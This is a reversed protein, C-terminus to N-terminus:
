ESEKKKFRVTATKTQGAGVTVTRGETGLEDHRFIVNHTGASVKVGTVPTSGYPKGDIIVKSPPISNANIFGGDKSAPEPKSGPTPKPTPGPVPSPTPAAVKEGEKTLEIEFTQEAKGDEFSLPKEFDQYGKLKAQIIWKFNTDLEKEVETGRFSLREDTRKEGEEKVLKVDAGRTKLKFSVKVKLLPLTVDNLEFTEGPKLEVIKELKGWKDGGEFRLTVKGSELDDLSLPKDGTLSGKEQGNVFVKIDADKMTTALKLKAPGKAPEEPESSTDLPVAVTTDKGGEVDISTQGALSGSVVRVQKSGPKLELKCPAFECMKQGDVYINAKDVEKGDHTVHIEVVASAAARLYFFGAAALVLAAFFALILTSKGGSSQQVPQPAPAWSPHPVRMPEERMPSIDRPIPAPAPIRPLPDAGPGVSFPTAHMPATQMPVAMPAPPQSKMAVPQASRGSSALLAAANGVGRKPEESEQFVRPRAALDSFLDANSRDFVNTAEESEDWDLDAMAEGPLVSGSADEFVETMNVSVEPTEAPAPPVSSSSSTRSRRSPPPTPKPLSAAASAPPEQSSAPAPATTSAPAGSNRKPPLKPKPLSASGSSKPPPLPRSQPASVPGTPVSVGGRLTSPSSGPGSSERKKKTLGEFVDLDSGKDSM